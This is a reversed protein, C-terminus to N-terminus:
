RRGSRGMLWGVVVGSLAALAGLAVGGVLIQPQQHQPNPTPWTMGGPSVAGPSTVATPRTGAAVPVPTGRDAPRSVQREGTLVGDVSHFFQAALKKAVGTLMRQGVGAIMGGIVTDADYEVYTVGDPTDILLVRCEASVTGPGGAGSAKLVFSHPPHKDALRVAGKYTGKISGVGVSVLM